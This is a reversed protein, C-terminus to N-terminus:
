IIRANLFAGKVFKIWKCEISNNIYMNYMSRYLISSLKMGSVLAIRFWCNLVRSRVNLSLPKRGLEGYVIVNDTSNKVALM